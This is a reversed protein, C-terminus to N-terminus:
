AGGRPVRLRRRVEASVRDAAAILAPDTRYAYRKRVGPVAHGLLGGILHDSVGVDGAITAFSRRLDHLTVDELGARQRVVHWAANFTAVPAPTASGRTQGPFLPGAPDLARRRMLRVFAAASRGLVIRDV